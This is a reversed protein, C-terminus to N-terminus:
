PLSDPLIPSPEPNELLKRLLVSDVSVPIESELRHRWEALRRQRLDAELRAAIEERVEDFTWHHDPDRRGTRKIVLFLPSEDLVQSVTSTSDFLFAAQLPTIENRYTYGHTHIQVRPFLQHIRDSTVDRLLQSRVLEMTDRRPHYFYIGRAMPANVRFSHYNRDYYRRIQKASPPTIPAALSDLLRSIIVQEAAQRAAWIIEPQQALGRNHAETLLQARRIWEKLLERPESQPPAAACLLRFDGTSLTDTGVVALPPEPQVQPHPDPKQQSFCGGLLFVLLFLFRAM